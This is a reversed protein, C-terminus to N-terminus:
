APKNLWTDLYAVIDRVCRVNKIDSDPIELGFEEELDFMLEVAAFSDVGLDEALRTDPNIRSLEVNLKKSLIKRVKLDIDENTM